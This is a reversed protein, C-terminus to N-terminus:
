VASTSNEKHHAPGKSFQQRCDESREVQRHHSWLEVMCDLCNRRIELFIYLKHLPHLPKRRSAHLAETSQM